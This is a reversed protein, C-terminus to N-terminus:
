IENNFDGRDNNILKIVQLLKDRFIVREDNTLIDPLAEELHFELELYDSSRTNGKFIGHVGCGFDNEYAFSYNYSNYKKSEHYKVATASYKVYTAEGIVKVETIYKNIRNLLKLFNKEQLRIEKTGEKNTGFLGKINDLKYNM